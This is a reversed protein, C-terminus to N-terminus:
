APQISVVRHIEDSKFGVIVPKEASQVVAIDFLETVIGTIRLWHVTDGTTTDVVFIGCRASVNERDLREQLALGGFTRNERPESAGVIAYRGVFTLGRLYGPCFAVPEFRGSALDLHGIEGSGANLLWLREEHWRPSHPMSLGAGVVDGSSVDVVVGGDRRNDRWGDAIDSRSVATVFAVAGDRMALGNLHCRDEAALRSIFPPKWIPRFSHTPSVTALCSFLTNVFVIEGTASLALDHVDLDGTFHAIQPVYVPDAGDSDTGHHGDVFTFIQTRGAVVLSTRNCAIGMPREVHRNFIWLRRMEPDVGVIVVMGAQYTSLVLAVGLDTLLGEFQRSATIEFRPPESSKVSSPQPRSPAASFTTM